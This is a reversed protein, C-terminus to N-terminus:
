EFAIVGSLAPVLAPPAAGNTAITGGAPIDQGTLSITHQYETPWPFALAKNTSENVVVACRGVSAGDVYCANFQRGYVGSSQLLGSVDSPYAQVPDTPVLETEPLEDFLDVTLFSSSYVSTGRHYTLLFSAYEYIRDGTATAADAGDLGRCLFIKRADAMEIETNETALWTNG